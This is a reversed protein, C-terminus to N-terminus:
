WRVHGTNSHPRDTFVTCGLIVKKQKTKNRLVSWLAPRPTSRPEKEARHRTRKNRRRLFWVPISSLHTWSRFYELHTSYWFMHLVPLTTRTSLWVGHRRSKHPLPPIAGRMRLRPALHLHSALKVGRLFFGRHGNSLHSFPDWLLHPNPASPFFDWWQGASSQVGTAWGM